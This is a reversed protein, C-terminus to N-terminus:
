DMSKNEYVVETVTFIKEISKSIPQKFKFKNANVLRFPIKRLFRKGNIYSYRENWNYEFVFSDHFHVVFGHRNIQSPYPLENKSM